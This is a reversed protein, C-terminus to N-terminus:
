AGTGDGGHLYDRAHDIQVRVKIIAPTLSPQDAGLAELVALMAEVTAVMNACIRECRQEQGNRKARKFWAWIGAGAGGFLAGGATQIVAAQVQPDIDAAM